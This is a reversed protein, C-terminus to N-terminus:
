ILRDREPLEPVDDVGLQINTQGCLYRLTNEFGRVNRPLVRAFPLEKPLSRGTVLRRNDSWSHFHPGSIMGTDIGQPLEVGAMRRNNHKEIDSSDIRAVCTRYILLIHFDLFPKAPFTNIQLYMDTVDGDAVLRSQWRKQGVYDTGHWASPEAIRKSAALLADVRAPLDSLGSM